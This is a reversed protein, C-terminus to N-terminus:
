RFDDLSAPSGGSRPRTQEILLAIELLQQIGVAPLLFAIRDVVEVRQRDLLEQRSHGAIELDLHLQRGADDVDLDPLDVDAADVSYRSSVLM